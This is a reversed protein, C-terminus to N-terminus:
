RTKRQYDLEGRTLQLGVYVRFDDGTQGAQIPIRMVIPDPKQWQVKSQNQPFPISLSFRAKDLIGKDKDTIALFYEFDAVRDTSAPGISSEIVPAVEVTLEGAGTDDMDYTCRHAFGTVKEVHLVDIIDRGQGPKFRTLEASDAPILIQPCPRPIDPTNACAALTLAAAGIAAMSLANKHVTKNERGTM